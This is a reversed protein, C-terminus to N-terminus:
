YAMTGMSDRCTSAQSCLFPPLGVGYVGNHSLSSHASGRVQAEEMKRGEGKEHAVGVM